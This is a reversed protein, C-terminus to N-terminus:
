AIQFIYFKLYSTEPVNWLIPHDCSQQRAEIQRLSVGASEAAEHLMSKFLGENMFHSCSCTALYGGRPLLKMAATNIQRYGKVAHSITERSKTFAPPDLIIMDYVRPQKKLDKLLEFVDATEFTMREQLGNMDAHHKAMDIATQSIDVAHVHAAGGKAANLAFSGTHTFCDLVHKGKAIRAISARNYKQDLFFGTKQGNEVDVDYRIGNELISTICSQPHDPLERHTYWGKSEKLGELKRIAVDNREYIGKVAVHYEDKLLRVLMPFLLDKRQEMGYSLTQVVLLDHFRDVTLGPLYDAEGFILRCADFDKGMVTARYSIAHQLRRYFFDEDFSDNANRSILRIRIRSNGNYLGSGQYSGKESFVDVIDGNQIDAELALVEGEYVWPHGSQLKKTGKKTITVQKWERTTKM